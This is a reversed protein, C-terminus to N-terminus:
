PLGSLSQQQHSINQCGSFFDGWLRNVQKTMQHWFHDIQILLVVQDFWCTRLHFVDPTSFQSSNRVFNVSNQIVLENQWLFSHWISPVLANEEFCMKPYYSTIYNKCHKSRASIMKLCLFIFLVKCIPLLIVHSFIFTIFYTSLM